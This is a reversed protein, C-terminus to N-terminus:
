RIHINIEYNKGDSHTYLSNIGKEGHVIYDGIKPELSRHAMGRPHKETEMETGILKFNEVVVGLLSKLRKRQLEIRENIM